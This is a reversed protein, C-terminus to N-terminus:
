FEGIREGNENRLIIKGDRFDVWKGGYNIRIKDPDFTASPSQQPRIFLLLDHYTAARSQIDHFIEEMAKDLEPQLGDGSVTVLRDSKPKMRDIEAELYRIRAKLLDIKEQM